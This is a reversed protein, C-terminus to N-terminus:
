NIKLYMAKFLRREMTNRLFFTIGIGSVVLFAAQVKRQMLARFVLRFNELCAAAYLLETAQHGDQHTLTCIIKLLKDRRRLCRRSLPPISLLQMLCSSIGEWRSEVWWRSIRERHVWPVVRTWCGMPFLLGFLQVHRQPLLTLASM